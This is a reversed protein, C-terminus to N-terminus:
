YYQGDSVYEFLEYSFEDEDNFFLEDDIWEVNSIYKSLIKRDGYFEENGEFEVCLLYKSLIEKLDGRASHKIIVLPIEKSIYGKSIDGYSDAILSWQNTYSEIYCGVENIKKNIESLKVVANNDINEAKLIYQCLDIM